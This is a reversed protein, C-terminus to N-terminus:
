HPKAVLSILLNPSPPGLLQTPLQTANRCGRNASTREVNWEYQCSGRDCAVMDGSEQCYCWLAQPKESSDVNVVIVPCAVPSLRTYCKGLLEPLVGVQFFHRAKPLMEEWLVEDKVVWKCHYSKQTWIVFDGYTHGCVFLQCQM